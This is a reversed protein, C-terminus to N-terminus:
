PADDWPNLKKRPVPHLALEDQQVRLPASQRVLQVEHAAQIFNALFILGGVPIVVLAAM